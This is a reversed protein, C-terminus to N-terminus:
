HQRGTGGPYTYAFYTGPIEEKEPPSSAASSIFFVMDLLGFKLCTGFISQLIALSHPIFVATTVLCVVKHGKTDRM